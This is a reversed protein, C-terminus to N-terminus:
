RRKPPFVEEVLKRLFTGPVTFDKFGEMGSFRM